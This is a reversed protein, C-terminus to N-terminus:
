TRTVSGLVKGQKGDGTGGIRLGCWASRKRLRLVLRRWGTSQVNRREREHMGKKLCQPPNKKQWPFFRFLISKQKKRGSQNKRKGGTSKGGPRKVRKERHALRTAETSNKPPARTTRQHPHMTERGLFRPPASPKNAMPNKSSTGQQCGKARQRPARTCLHKPKKKKETKRHHKRCAITKWTQKKEM